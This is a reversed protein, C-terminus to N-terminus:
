FYDGRDHGALSEANHLMLLQWDTTMKPHIRVQLSNVNVRTRDPMASEHSACVKQMPHCPHGPQKDPDENNFSPTHPGLDTEHPSKLATWLRHSHEAHRGPTDPFTPKGTVADGQLSHATLRTQTHTGPQDVTRSGGDVTNAM